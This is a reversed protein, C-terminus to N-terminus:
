EDGREFACQVQHGPGHDHIPYHGFAVQEARLDVLFALEDVGFVRPELSGDLDRGLLANLWNPTSSSLYARTAQRVFSAARNGTPRRRKARMPRNNASSFHEKDADIQTM